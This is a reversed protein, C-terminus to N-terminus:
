LNVELTFSDKLTNGNSDKAGPLLSLSLIGPNFSESISLLFRLVTIRKEEGPGAPYLNLPPPSIAGAEMEKFSYDIASNSVTFRFAELISPISLDTYASHIIYLDFCANESSMVSLNDNLSLEQFHPSPLTLDNCFAVGGVELPLSYAGDVIFRFTEEGMSLEYVDGYTLADEFFVRCSGHDEAWLVDHSAYPVIGALGEMEEPRAPRSFTCILSDKKELGTNIYRTETEELVVGSPDALIEIIELPSPSPLLFSFGIDRLLPNGSLDRCDTNLTVRYEIGRHYPQHPIFRLVRGDDEWSYDGAIEPSITYASYFSPISIPESFTLIVAGRDSEITEGDLPHHHLLRPNENERGTFYALDLPERLSNGRTDEGGTIELRYSRNKEIERIPQIALTDGEWQFRLPVQQEERYLRCSQEISSKNPSASFLLSFSSFTEPDLYGEEPSYSEIILPEMNVFEEIMECSTVISIVLFFVCLVGFFKSAASM